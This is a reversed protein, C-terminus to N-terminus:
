SPDQKGDETLVEPKHEEKGIRVRCLNLARKRRVRELIFREEDLYSGEAKKKVLSFDFM